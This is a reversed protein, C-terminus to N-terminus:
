PAALVSVTQSNDVEYDSFFHLSAFYSGRAKLDCGDSEAAVDEAPRIVLARREGNEVCADVM